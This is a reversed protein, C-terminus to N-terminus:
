YDRYLFSRDLSSREPSRTRCEQLRHSRDPSRSSPSLSKNLSSSQFSVSHNQRRLEKVAREVQREFRETGLQRKVMDLEAEQQTLKNKLQITERSQSLLKNESQALKGKLHEIESDLEQTIVQAQFEKEQNTVLLSELNKLSIRESGLQKRILEIESHASVLEKQLREMDQAKSTLQRNVVEKSSDLKICLERTSNLENLLSVKESKLKQLEEEVKVTSKNLCSVQAKYSIETSLHQEIELELSDMQEKLRRRESESNLLELRMSSCEGESQHYKSQWTEVESTARRYNELHERNEKEKSHILSELRSVDTITDQVKLKVDELEKQSDKLRYNLTQNEQKTKSLQDQLRCNDQAASERDRGTRSLEENTDDLQRCVRALEQDRINVLEKAKRSADELDATTIRLNSVTKEKISLSEELAAIKEAKDDMSFVLSDKEKHLESITTRLLAIDDLQSINQSTLEGIKEELRGIKEQAMKLENQKMTLRCQTDQLTHETEDNLSRLAESALKQRGLENEKDMVKRTLLEMDSDTSAITERMLSLKNKNEVHEKESARLSSRYEEIQQELHARENIATEQSIKLRERLSDRETTMRRLDSIAGNREAEVRRLINQATLNAKPAKPSKILERRLRAVEEQARNYLVNLKDREGTLVKINAQIESMHREYKQLLTQLEDRERVVKAFDFELSAGQLSICKPSGSRRRLLKRLKECERRYHDKEEELSKVFCDLKSPSMARPKETALASNKDERELKEIKKSLRSKEEQLQDLLIGLTRNEEKKEEIEAESKQLLQSIAEADSRLDQNESELVEITRQKHEIEVQTSKIEQEATDIVLEKDRELQEALKDIETLEKCLEENKRTLNKVQGNVAEKSEQLQLIRFELDNNTHQLEDIETLPKEPVNHINATSSNEM